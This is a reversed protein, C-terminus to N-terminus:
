DAKILPRMLIQKENKFVVLYFGATLTSVDLLNNGSTLKQTQLIEKGLYDTVVIKELEISTSVWIKGNTPNPYVRLEEDANLVEAALPLDDDVITITYGTIGLHTGNTPSVLDFNIQENTELITDNIIQVWVGQTDISNPLFVVTSDHFIFDLGNTASSPALKITVKTTDQVPSSITVKVEVLSTDERYAFGAGLFSVTLSDDDLIYLTHLSDPIVLGTASVNLFRLLVTETPEIWQDNIIQINVTDYSIGNGNTFTKNSYVYDFGYGQTATSNADDRAVVFSVPSSNPNNVEVVVKISDVSELASDTATLFRITAPQQPNLDTITLVYDANLLVAGNTPNALQIEVTEDPHYFNDSFITVPVNITGNSLAAWTITTDNFYFRTGQQATTGAPVLKVQVSTASNSLSTLIVPVFVTGANEPQTAAAPSVNMKLTDNDLITVLHQSNAGITANNTPFALQFIFYENGEAINDDTINVTVNQTFQSNAPFTVTVPSYTFDSGYMATGGSMVNVDVSTANVDPNTITLALQFTGVGESVTSSTIVFEVSTNSDAFLKFVCFSFFVALTKKM